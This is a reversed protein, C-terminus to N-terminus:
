RKKARKAAARESEIRGAMSRIQRATAKGTRLARGAISAEPRSPPKEPAIKRAMLKIRESAQQSSVAIGIALEGEEQAEGRSAAQSGQEQVCWSTSAIM